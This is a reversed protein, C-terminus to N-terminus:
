KSLYENYNEQILGWGHVVDKKLPNKGLYVGHMYKDKQCELYWKYNFFKSVIEVNWGKPDIEKLARKILAFKNM